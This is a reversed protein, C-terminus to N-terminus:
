PVVRLVPEPQALPKRRLLDTERAAENPTAVGNRAVETNALSPPRVPDDSCAALFGTSLFGLVFVWQPPNTWTM